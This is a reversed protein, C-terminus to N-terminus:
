TGFPVSNFYKLVTFNKSSMTSICCSSFFGFYRRDASARRARKMKVTENQGVRDVAAAMSVTMSLEGVM